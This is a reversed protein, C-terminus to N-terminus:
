AVRQKLAAVLWDISAEGELNWVREILSSAVKHDILSSLCKVAKEEIERNSLPDRPDGHPYDGSKVIETGDKLAVIVRCPAGNPYARTMEVDEVVEIKQVLGAVEKEKEIFGDDFYEYEVTKSTVFRITEKM